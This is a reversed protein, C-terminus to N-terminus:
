VRAGISADVFINRRKFPVPAARLLHMRVSKLSTAFVPADLPAVDRVWAPPEVQKAAAAQEVMAAVYNQWYPTLAMVEGNAVADSFAIPALAHLFDNLEALSYRRQETSHIARVLDAFRDEGAPLLRSLVYRSVDTGAARALRKLTAKQQPTLRIQLQATKGPM